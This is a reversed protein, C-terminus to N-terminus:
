ERKSSIYRFFVEKFNALRRRSVYLIDGNSLTVKNDILDEVHNLNVM